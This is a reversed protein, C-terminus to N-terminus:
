TNPNNIIVDENKKYVNTSLETQIDSINQQIQTLDDNGTNNLGYTTTPFTGTVIGYTTKAYLDM